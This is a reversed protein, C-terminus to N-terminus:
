DPIPTGDRQTRTRIGDNLHLVVDHERFQVIDRTAKTGVVLYVADEDSDNVLCHAVPDGAKFTAADGSTLRTTLDDEHLTVTGQLVLVMEDEHAHWHQPSSKSGPPLSELHAGFQTLRGAQAILKYKSPGLKEGTAANQGPDPSWDGLEIKPM